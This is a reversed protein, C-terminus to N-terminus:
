RKAVFRTGRKRIEEEVEDRGFLTLPRNVRLRSSIDDLDRETELKYQDKSQEYTAPWVPLHREAEM